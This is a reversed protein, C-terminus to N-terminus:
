EIEFADKGGVVEIWTIGANMLLEEGTKSDYFKLRETASPKKWKADIVKGDQLLWAEGEGVTRVSRRGVEDLVRIDTVAIAVNNAFIQIGGGTLHPEGAQDRFYGNLTSDYKWDVVYSPEDFEVRAGVSLGSPNSDKFTWTEYLREPASGDKEKLSTYNMMRRISTFVDHPAFRDRARWFYEGNWYENLDFTGGTAIQDLAANSGGVHAFLADFENNWDLFYPRASRVPGIQRIDDEDSFFAIFRSISAEVPAEFVLFAKEIGFQPWADIQNDVVVGFVRLLTELQEDMLEGTLPHRYQLKEEAAAEGQVSQVIKEQRFFFDKTVLWVAAALVVVVILGVLALHDAKKLRAFVCKLKKKAEKM